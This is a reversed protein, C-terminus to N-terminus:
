EAMFLESRKGTINIPPHTQGTCIFYVKGTRNIEVLEEVTPTWCSVVYNKARHIPLDGCDEVGKPAKLTDNVEEFEIPKM